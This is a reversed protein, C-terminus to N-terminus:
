IFKRLKVGAVGLGLMGLITAAPLPVVHVNDVGLYGNTGANGVNKVQFLLTYTGSNAFDYEFSRWGFDETHADFTFLTVSGGSLGPGSLLIQGTDNNTGGNGEADWFYDFTLTNGASVEFSRSLQTVKSAGDPKLVAFYQNGPGSPYPTWTMPATESSHSSVVAVYGSTSPNVYSWGTLDTEFSGNSLDARVVGASLALVTVGIFISGQRFRRTGLEM